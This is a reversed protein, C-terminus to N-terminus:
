WTFGVGAVGGRGHEPPALYGQLSSAGGDNWDRTFYAAAGLGVATGVAALWTTAHSSENGAILIGLSAGGVAGVIGGADIVLTQGRSIAPWRSALYAGGAIGADFAILAGLAREHQDLQAGSAAYVLATLAGAWLGGSNALAVQGATPHVKFLVAGSVLGAGQGAILGLAITKGDSDSNGAILLLGANAAGWATGSNLLARQGSTLDHLSLSAVAGIAAGALPVAVFAQGSDCELAICVEIGLAIGHLSQFLALEARAGRSATEGTERSDTVGGHDDVAGPALGLQASRVLRTAPHDPHDRLMASALDRARTREGQMLAAFVEHYLQWVADSRPDVAPAVAAESGAAGTAMPTAPPRPAPAPQAAAVRVAALVCM